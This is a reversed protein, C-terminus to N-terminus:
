CFCRFECSVYRRTLLWTDRQVPSQNWSGTFSCSEGSRGGLMRRMASEHARSLVERELHSECPYAKWIPNGDRKFNENLLARPSTFSITNWIKPTFKQCTIEKHESFFFVFNFNTQFIIAIKSHGRWVHCKLFIWFNDM